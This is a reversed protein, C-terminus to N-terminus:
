NGATFSPSHHQDPRFQVFCRECRASDCTPTSKHNVTVPCVSGRASSTSSKEVHHELFDPTEGLVLKSVDEATKRLAEGHMQRDLADGPDADDRAAQRVLRAVRQRAINPNM